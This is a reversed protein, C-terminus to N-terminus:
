VYINEVIIANKIKKNRHPKGCDECTRGSNKMFKKICCNGLIILEKKTKDTIYCNEKIYHGCVCNNEHEPLQYDGFNLKWYKYHSKKGSGDGGCYQWNDLDEMKMEYKEWLGNKFQTTITEKVRKTNM